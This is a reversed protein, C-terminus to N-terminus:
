AANNGLLARIRRVLDDEAREAAVLDSLERSARNLHRSMSAKCWADLQPETLQALIKVADSHTAENPDGQPM